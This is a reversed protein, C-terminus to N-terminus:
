ILLDMDMDTRDVCEKPANTFSNKYENDGIKLKKVVELANEDMSDLPRKRFITSRRKNVPHVFHKVEGLGLEELDNFFSIAGSVPYGNKPNERDKLPIGPFLRKQAAVTASISTGSSLLFKKVKPASSGVVSAHVNEKNASTTARAPNPDLEEEDSTIVIEPPSLAIKTALM